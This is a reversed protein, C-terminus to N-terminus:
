NYLIDINNQIFITLWDNSFLYFFFIDIYSGLVNKKFISTAKKKKYKIQKYNFASTQVVVIINEVCWLRIYIYIPQM